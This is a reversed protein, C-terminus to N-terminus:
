IKWKATIRRYTEDIDAQTYEPHALLIEDIEQKCLRDREALAIRKLSVKLKAMKEDEMEEIAVHEVYKYTCVDCSYIIRPDKETRNSKDGPRYSRNIRGDKCVPCKMMNEKTPLKEGWVSPASEMCLIEFMGGDYKVKSKVVDLKKVDDFFKECEDVTNLAEHDKPDHKLKGLANIYDKMAQSKVSQLLKHANEPDLFRVYSSHPTPEFLMQERTM